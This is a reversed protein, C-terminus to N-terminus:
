RMWQGTVKLFLLSPSRKGRVAGPTLSVAMSSLTLRTSVQVPVDAIKDERGHLGLAVWGHGLEGLGLGVGDADGVEGRLVELGDDVSGADDGGGVLDLAVRQQLLLVGQDLVGLLLADVDGGVRYTGRRLERGDPPGTM